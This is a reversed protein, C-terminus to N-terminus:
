VVVCHGGLLCGDVRVVLFLFCVVHNFVFIARWVRRGREVIFAVRVAEM